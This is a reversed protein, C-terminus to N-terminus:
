STTGVDLLADGSTGTASWSRDLQPAILTVPGPGSSEWLVALRPGHWRMAFSLTHRPGACVDHVNGDLGRWADPVGAAFLEITTIGGSDDVGRACRHEIAAVVDIATALDFRQPVGLDHGSLPDGAPSDNHVLPATRSWVTAADAAARTEGSARLAHSAQQVARHARGFPGTSRHMARAIRAVADAVPGIWEDLTEGMRVREALGLVGLDPAAALLAEWEHAHAIAIRARAAVLASALPLTPIDVRSAAESAAVWGAAVREASACAVADRTTPAVVFRVTARHGVPHSRATAPVGPVNAPAADARGGSMAPGDFLVACARPSDNTFEVVLTGGDDAVMWCTLVADGGPLAIRQVVVPAGDVNSVRLSPEREPVHLREESMVFWRLPHQEGDIHISTDTAVCAGGGGARVGLRISGIVDHGDSVLYVHGDGDATHGDVFRARLAALRRRVM